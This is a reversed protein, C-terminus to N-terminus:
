SCLGPGLLKGAFGARRMPLIVRQRLDEEFDRRGARMVHDPCVRVGATIRAFYAKDSMWRCFEAAAGELRSVPLRGECPPAGLPCVNFDPPRSEYVCGLCALEPHGLKIVPTLGPLVQQPLTAGFFGLIPKGYLSAFHMPLSDIGVFGSCHKMLWTLDEYSLKDLLSLSEPHLVPINNGVEVTSIGQRHLYAIIARLNDPHTQRGQWERRESQTHFVVFPANLGKLDAFDRPPLLPFPDQDLAKPLLKLLLFYQIWHPCYSHYNVIATLDYYNNSIRSPVTADSVASCRPSVLQFPLQWHNTIVTCEPFEQLIVQIVPVLNLVDGAGKSNLRLYLPKKKDFRDVQYPVMGLSLRARDILFGQVHRRAAADHCCRTLAPLYTDIFKRLLNQPM